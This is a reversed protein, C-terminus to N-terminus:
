CSIRFKFFSVRFLDSIRIPFYNESVTKWLNAISIEKLNRCEHKSNGRSTARHRLSDGFQANSLADAEFLKHLTGPQFFLAHLRNEQTAPRGARCLPLFNGAYKAHGDVFDDPAVGRRNLM